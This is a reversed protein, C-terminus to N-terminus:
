ETDYMKTATSLEHININVKARDEVTEIVTYTLLYTIAGACSYMPRISTICGAVRCPMPTMLSYKAKKLANLSDIVKFRACLNILTM